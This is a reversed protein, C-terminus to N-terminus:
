ECILPHVCFSLTHPQSAIIFVQYQIEYTNDCRGSGSCEGTHSVAAPSTISRPVFLGTSTDFTAAPTALAAQLGFAHRPSFMAPDDATNGFEDRLQLALSLPTKHPYVGAGHSGSFTTNAAAPPGSAVRVSFPSGATHYASYLRLSPMLTPGDGNDMLLQLSPTDSSTGRHVYEMKVDHLHEAAAFAFTGSPWRSSLSSWQDIVIAGDVWLRVREPATDGADALTRVLRAQFVDSLPKRSNLLVSPDTPQRCCNPKITGSINKRWLRSSPLLRVMACLVWCRVNDFKANGAVCGFAAAVHRRFRGLLGFDNGRARGCSKNSRHRRLVNRAAWGGVRSLVRSLSHRGAHARLQVGRRRQWWRTDAGIYPPRHAHSSDRLSIGRGAPLCKMLFTHVCSIEVAPKPNSRTMRHAACTAGLM